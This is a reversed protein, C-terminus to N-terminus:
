VSYFLRGSAISVMARHSKTLYHAQPTIPDNDLMRGENLEEGVSKIFFHRCVYLTEKDKFQEKQNSRVIFQSMSAFM